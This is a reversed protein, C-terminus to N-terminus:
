FILPLFFHNDNPEICPTVINIKQKKKSADQVFLTHSRNMSVVKEGLSLVSVENFSFLTLLLFHKWNM